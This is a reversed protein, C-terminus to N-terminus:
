AMGSNYGTMVVIGDVHIFYFILAFFSTLWSPIPIDPYRQYLYPILQNARNLDLCTYWAELATSGYYYVLTFRLPNTVDNFMYNYTNQSMYGFYGVNYCSLQPISSVFSRAYNVAWNVFNDIYVIKHNNSTMMALEYPANPPMQPCAGWGWRASVTAAFLIALLSIIRM